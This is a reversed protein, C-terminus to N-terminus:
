SPPLVSFISAAKQVIHDLESWNQVQYKLQEINDIDIEQESSFTYVITHGLNDPDHVHIM